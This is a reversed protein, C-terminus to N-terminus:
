RDERTREQGGMDEGTGGQGGPEGGQPQPVGLEQGALQLGQHRGTCELYRWAEWSLRRWGGPWGRTESSRSEMGRVEREEVERTAAREEAGEAPREM